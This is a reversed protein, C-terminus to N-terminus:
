SIRHLETISFLGTVGSRLRNLPDSLIDLPLPSSSSASPKASYEPANLDPKPAYLSVVNNTPVSSIIFINKSFLEFNEYSSASSIPIIMVLAVLFPIITKVPQFYSTESPKSANNDDVLRHSSDDTISYKIKDQKSITRLRYKSNDHNSHFSDRQLNDPSACLHLIRCARRNIGSLVPLKCIRNVPSLTNSTTVESPCQLIRGYKSQSVGFGIAPILYIICLIFFTYSIRKLYSNYSDNKTM